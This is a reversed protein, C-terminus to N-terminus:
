ARVYLGGESPGDRLQSGALEFANLVDVKTRSRDDNWEGIRRELEGDPLMQVFRELAVRTWAGLRLECAARLVAGTATCRAARSSCPDAIRGSYDQAIRGQCWGMQVIRAARAFLVRLIPSEDGCLGSTRVEIPGKAARVTEAAACTWTLGEVTRLRIEDGEAVESSSIQAGWFRSPLQM